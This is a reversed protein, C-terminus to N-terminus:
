RTGWGATSAATAEAPAALVKVAVLAVDDFPHQECVVEDIIHSLLEDVEDPGRTATEVLRDFGDDISAGRREVLGDTYLLITSGPEISVEAEDCAGQDLVGLPLSRGGELYTASGNPRLLLPPPHGAIAFRASGTAPDVVLCVVTAMGREAYATVRDLQEIASSPSHGELVFARLAHRLEGMTAAAEIGHGVVDGVMLVLRGDPFEVADYWDGGVHTGRGAPLYRAAVRAAPSSPLRKPLLSRQLTEAVSTAKAYLRANDIAIAARDATLQLQHVDDTTFVRRDLQGTCLSGILEDQVLLPVGILSRVGSGRARPEGIGSTDDLVIPAHREVVRHILSQSVTAFMAVTVEDVRGVAVRQGFKKDDDVLLISTADSELQGHVYQLLGHLLDDLSSHAHGVEVVARIDELQRALAEAERHASEAARQNRRSEALAAQLRRESEQLAVEAERRKTLDRAIISAAVVAGHEGRVPSVTLSVYVEHGDKHRRRTEFHEVREGRRIREIIMPIEDELGPPALMAIPKGVAEARSYGYLREAGLNWSRITGDLDKSIIADESYEVIAALELLERTRPEDARRTEPSDATDAGMEIRM